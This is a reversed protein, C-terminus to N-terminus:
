TVSRIRVIVKAIARKIADSIFLESAVIEYGDSMYVTVFSYSWGGYEMDVRQVGPLEWLYKKLLGRNDSAKAKCIVSLLKRRLKARNREKQKERFDKIREVLNM